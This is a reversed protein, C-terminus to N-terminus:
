QAMTAVIMPVSFPDPRLLIVGRGECGSKRQCSLRPKSDILRKGLDENDRLFDKRYRDCRPCAVDVEFGWKLLDGFRLGHPLVALQDRSLRQMDKEAQARPDVHWIGIGKLAVAKHTEEGLTEISGFGTVGNRKLRESPPLQAKWALFEAFERRDANHGAKLHEGHTVYAIAGSLL